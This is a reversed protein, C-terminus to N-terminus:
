HSRQVSVIRAKTRDLAASIFTHAVFQREHRTGAFAPLGGPCFLNLEGASTDIDVAHAHIYGYEM